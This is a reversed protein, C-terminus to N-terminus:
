KEPLDIFAHVQKYFTSDIGYIKLLDKKVFFKGGKQRYRDIRTALGSSFGLAQLDGVTARNPDFYFLTTKPSPPAIEDAITEAEWLAVLSDLMALDKSRDDFRRSMYWHWIPGSFIIIGLLPVLVIFGNAQSHSLAFLERVWRTIGWMVSVIGLIAIKEPASPKRL